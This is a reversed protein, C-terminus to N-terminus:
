DQDDSGRLRKQIEAYRRACVECEKVERLHWGGYDPGRRMYQNCLTWFHSEWWHSLEGRWAKGQGLRAKLKRLQVLDMEAIERLVTM